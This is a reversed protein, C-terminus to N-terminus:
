HLCVFEIRCRAVFTSRVCIRERVSVCAGWGEKQQVSLGRAGTIFGPTNCECKAVSGIVSLSCCLVGRQEGVGNKGERGKVREMKAERKKSGM